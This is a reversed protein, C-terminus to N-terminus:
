GGPGAQPSRPLLLSITEAILAPRPSGELEYTVEYNALVGASPRDTVALVKTRLRVRGGAPVPTLFRLRNLGYNISIAHQRLGTLQDMLLPTLSLTLYGHAITSQFQSAAARPPDVHIWQHDGTVEAFADIRAQDLTM